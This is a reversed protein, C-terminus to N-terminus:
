WDDEADLWWAKTGYDLSFSRHIFGLPDFTKGRGDDIKDRARLREAVASQDTAKQLEGDDFELEVLTKYAYPRQFGMHIYYDWMFGDGLLIKGTFPIELNVNEYVRYGDREKNETISVGNFVPYRGEQNFIPLDALILKGDAIAYECWYGRWCDTSRYHPELGYDQPAFPIPESLAVISYEKKEYLLSDHIQATM